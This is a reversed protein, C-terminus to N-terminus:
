ATKRGCPGDERQSQADDDGSQQQHHDATTESEDPVLELFGAWECRLLGIVKDVAHIQLWLPSPLSPSALARCLVRNNKNTQKNQVTEKIKEEQRTELKDEKSSPLKTSQSCLWVSAQM